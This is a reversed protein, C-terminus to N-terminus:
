RKTVIIPLIEIYQRCTCPVFKTIFAVMREELKQYCEVHMRGGATCEKNTCSFFLFEGEPPRECAERGALAVRLVRKVHCDPHCCSGAIMQVRKDNHDADAAAAVATRGGKAPKRSVSPM